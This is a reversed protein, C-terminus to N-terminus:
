WTDYWARQRGLQDQVGGVNANSTLCLASDQLIDGTVEAKPEVM